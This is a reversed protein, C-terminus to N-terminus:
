SKFISLYEGYTRYLSLGPIDQKFEAPLQYKNAPYQQRIDIIKSYFEQWQKLIDMLKIFQQIFDEQKKSIAL